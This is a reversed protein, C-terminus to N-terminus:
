EKTLKTEADGAMEVRAPVVGTTVWNELARRAIFSYPTGTESVKAKIAHYLEDAVTIMLKQTM